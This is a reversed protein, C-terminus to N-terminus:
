ICFNPTGAHQEREDNGELEAAARQDGCADHRTENRERESYETRESRNQEVPLEGIAILQQM